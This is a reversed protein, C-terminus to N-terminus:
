TASSILYASILHIMSEISSSNSELVTALTSFANFPGVSREAVCALAALDMIIVDTAKSFLLLKTSILMTRHGM